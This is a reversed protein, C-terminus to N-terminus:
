ACKETHLYLKIIIYIDQTFNRKYNKQKGDAMFINKVFGKFVFGTFKQKLILFGWLCVAFYFVVFSCTQANGKKSKKGIYTDQSSM